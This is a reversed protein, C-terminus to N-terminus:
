IENKEDIIVSNQLNRLRPADSNLVGFPRVKFMNKGSGNVDIRLAKIFCKYTIGPVVGTGRPFKTTFDGMIEIGPVHASVGWWYSKGPPTEICKVFIVDDEKFEKLAKNEWPNEAVNKRSLFYAQEKGEVKPAFAKVEFQYFGGLECVSHLSRTFCKQWDNVNIFGVINMGFINVIAREGSPSINSVRGYVIPNKGKTLERSIEASVLAHPSIKTGKGKARASALTVTQAVEDVSEVIVEFQIDLLKSILYRNSDDKVFGSGPLVLLLGYGDIYSFTGDVSVHDFQINLVEKKELVERYYSIGKKLEDVRRKEQVDSSGGLKREWSANLAAIKKGM